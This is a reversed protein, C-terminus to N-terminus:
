MNPPPTRKAVRVPPKNHVALGQGEGWIYYWLENGKYMRIQLASTGFSESMTSMGDICGSLHHAVHAPKSSGWAYPTASITGADLMNACARSHRAM